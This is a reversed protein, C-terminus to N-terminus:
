FINNFDYMYEEIESQTWIHGDIRDVAVTGGAKECDGGLNILGFVWYVPASKSQLVEPSAIVEGRIEAYQAAKMAADTFSFNSYDRYEIPVSFCSVHNKRLDSVVPILKLRDVSVGLYGQYIRYEEYRFSHDFLEIFKLRDTRVSECLYIDCKKQM